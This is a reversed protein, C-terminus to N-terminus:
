DYDFIDDTAYITNAYLDAILFNFGEKEAKLKYTKLQLLEMLINKEEKFKFYSYILYVILVTFIVLELSRLIIMEIM